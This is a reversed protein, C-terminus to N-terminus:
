LFIFSKLKENPEINIANLIKIDKILKSKFNEEKKKMQNIMRHYSHKSTSDKIRLGKNIHTSKYNWAFKFSDVILNNQKQVFWEDTIQKVKYKLIRAKGQTLTM